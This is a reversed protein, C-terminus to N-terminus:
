SRRERLSEHQQASFCHARNNFKQPWVKSQLLHVHIAGNNGKGTEIGHVKLRVEIQM